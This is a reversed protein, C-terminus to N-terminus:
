SPGRNELSPCHRSGNHRAEDLIQKAGLVRNEQMAIDDKISGDRVIQRLEAALEPSADVEGIIREVDEERKHREVQMQRLIELEVEYVKLAVNYQLKPRDAGPNPSPM